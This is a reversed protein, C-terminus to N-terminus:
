TLKFKVKSYVTSCLLVDFFNKSDTLIFESTFIKQSIQRNLITVGEYTPVPTAKQSFQKTM